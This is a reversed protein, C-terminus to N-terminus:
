SCNFCLEVCKNICFKFMVGACVLQLLLGAQLADRALVIEAMPAPLGTPVSHKTRQWIM